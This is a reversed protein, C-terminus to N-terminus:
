KSSENLSKYLANIIESTSDMWDESLPDIIQLEPESKMLLQVQMKQIM